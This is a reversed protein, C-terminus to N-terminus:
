NTNLKMITGPNIQSITIVRNIDYTSLAMAGVNYKLAMPGYCRNHWHLKAEVPGNVNLLRACIM